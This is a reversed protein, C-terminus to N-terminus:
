QQVRVAVDFFRHVFGGFGPIGVLRVEDGVSCGGRVLDDHLSEGPRAVDNQDVAVAV